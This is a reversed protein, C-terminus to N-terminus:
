EQLNDILQATVTQKFERPHQSRDAITIVTAALLAILEVESRKSELNSLAKKFAVGEPSELLDSM